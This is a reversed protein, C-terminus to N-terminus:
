IHVIGYDYIMANHRWKQPVNTVLTMISAKEAEPFPGKTFKNMKINLIALGNLMCLYANSFIECLTRESHDSLM